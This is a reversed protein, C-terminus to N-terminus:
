FDFCYKKFSRQHNECIKATKKHLFGLNFNRSAETFDNVLQLFGESPKNWDLKGITTRQELLQESFRRHDHFQESLGGHFYV